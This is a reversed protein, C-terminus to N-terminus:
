HHTLWIALIQNNTEVTGASKTMLGAGAAYESTRDAVSAISAATTFSLVSVIEDAATMGTVGTINAGSATGAYLGVHLIGTGLKVGTVAATALGAAVIAGAQVVNSQVATAALDANTITGAGITSQGVTNLGGVNGPSPGIRVAINATAGGAILQTATPVGSAPGIATGFFVGGASKKSLKPTDGTVYYIADGISVASNSPGDTIGKVSLSYAGEFDVTTGNNTDKAYLAVGALQGVLCPDGSSVGGDTVWTYFQRALSKVRNSAM